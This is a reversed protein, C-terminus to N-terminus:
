GSAEKAPVFCSIRGEAMPAGTNADSLTCAFSSLGEPGGWVRRVTAELRQTPGFRECHFRLGRISALYGIRPVGDDESLLGAHAAICQAMYEIGIWAAVGGDADRFLEQEAIEIACTTEDDSHRLVRSLMSMAGRHPLLRELQVDGPM